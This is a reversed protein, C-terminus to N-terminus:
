TGSPFDLHLFHLPGSEKMDQAADDGAALIVGRARSLRQGTPQHYGLFRFVECPSQFGMSTSASFEEMMDDKGRGQTVLWPLSHSLHKGKFAGMCIKEGDWFGLSDAIDTTGQPESLCLLLHSYGPGM